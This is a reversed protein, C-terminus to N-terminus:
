PVGPTAPPCPQVARRYVAITASVLRDHDLSESAWQAAARGLRRREAPDDRLRRLEASWVEPSAGPVLRLRDGGAALERLSPIDSGLIPVGAAMAQLVANPTGETQSPFVLADAAALLPSLDDLWGLLRVNPPAAAQIAGRLPGDGALLFRVQEGALQRAMALLLDLRKVPDFRGAWAVAFEADGVGLGARASRRDHPQPFRELAAPVVHIRERPLAFASAVHDALARSNVVHGRDWRATCREIWRHWRREVEITATSTLVPVGLCGGVLRAAVNAHTLTAHILDPRIRRLHGLLRLLAGASRASAARCAFTPIGAAELDDSVPGRPALCGVHVDLGATRLGRALAALRLPTGGRQLDTVLLVIRM